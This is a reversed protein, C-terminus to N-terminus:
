PITSSSLPIAELTKIYIPAASFDEDRHATLMLSFEANHFTKKLHAKSVVSAMTTGEPVNGETNLIVRSVVECDHLPSGTLPLTLTASKKMFLLEM